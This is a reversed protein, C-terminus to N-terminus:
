ERKQSPFGRNQLSFLNKQVKEMAYVRKLILDKAMQCVTDFQERAGELCSVIDKQKNLITQLVETPDFQLLECDVMRGEQSSIIGELQRINQFFVQIALDEELLKERHLWMQVLESWGSELRDLRGDLEQYHLDTEGATICRGYSILQAFDDKKSEIEAKLKQHDALQMKVEDVSWSQETTAIIGQLRRLWLQNDDLGHLFQQLEASVLLKDQRDALALRLDKWNKDVCQKLQKVEQATQVEGSALYLDRRTPADQKLRIQLTTAESRIDEIQKELAKLDQEWGMLRRQLKTLSGLDTGLEDTSVLIEYKNIIWDNTQKVMTYYNQIGTALDFRSQRADVMSKLQKWQKFIQETVEALKINISTLPSSPKTICTLPKLVVAQQEDDEFDQEEEEEEEGDDQTSLLRFVTRNLSELLNESKTLFPQKLAEVISQHLQSIEQIQENAQSHVETHFVSFRYALIPLESSAAIFFDEKVDGLSGISRLRGTTHPVIEPYMKSLESQKIDIWSELSTIKSVFKMLDRKIEVTRMNESCVRRCEDCKRGIEELHRLLAIPLVYIEPDLLLRMNVGWPSSPPAAPSQDFKIVEDKISHEAPRQPQCEKFQNGLQACSSDEFINGKSSTVCRPTSIQPETLAHKLTRKLIPADVQTIDAPVSHARGRHPEPKTLSKSSDNSQICINNELHCFTELYKCVEQLANEELCYFVPRSPVFGNIELRIQELKKPFRSFLEQARELKRLESNFVVEHDTSFSLQDKSSDLTSVAPQDGVVKRPFGLQDLRKHMGSLDLSEYTQSLWVNRDEIVLSLEILRQIIDLQEHRQWLKKSFDEAINILSQWTTQILLRLRKAEMINVPGSPKREQNDKQIDEDDTCVTDEEFGTRFNSIIPSQEALALSRDVEEFDTRMTQIITPKSLINDSASLYYNIQAAEDEGASESEISETSLSSMQSAEHAPAMDQDENSSVRKEAFSNLIVPPEDGTLSTRSFNEENFGHRLRHEKEMIRQRNRYHHFQLMTTEKCLTLDEPNIPPIKLTDEQDKIWQIESALSELLQFAKQKQANWDSMERLEENLQDRIKDVSALCDMAVERLYKSSLWGNSEESDQYRQQYPQSLCTRRVLNQWRSLNVLDQRLRELALNTMQTQEFAFKHIDKMRGQLHGFIENFEILLYLWDEVSKLAVSRINLKRQLISWRKVLSDWQNFCRQIEECVYNSKLEAVMAQLRQLRVQAYAEADALWAAHKRRSATTRHLQTSLKPPVTTSSVHEAAENFFSEISTMDSHVAKADAKEAVLLIRENEELWNSFIILKRELRRGVHKINVQKALETVTALHCIHETESLESWARDVDCLRYGEPPRFINQSAALQSIRIKHLIFEIQCRESMKEIKEKQCWDTFFQLRMRIAMEPDVGHEEDRSFRTSNQQLSNLMLMASQKWKLWRHLRVMYRQQMRSITLLQNLVNNLRTAVKKVNQCENLWRYWTVVVTLVCREDSWWSSVFDMPEVLEPIGLHDAAVDFATEVRIWPENDLAVMYDYDILSPCHRHLLACFALGDRWSNTFDCIEVQPYGATKLQCWLMLADRAHRVEGNDMPEPIEIGQVQFHLIITWILGLTLRPNGDVIDQAGLNEMHAGESYLFRLAQGVNELHHIRMQSQNPKAAQDEEFTVFYTENSEPIMQVKDHTDMFGIEGPPVGSGLCKGSLLELLRLLVRGDRLDEFLERVFHLECFGWARAARNTQAVNNWMREPPSGPGDWYDQEGLQANIWKTFLEKQMHDREGTHM